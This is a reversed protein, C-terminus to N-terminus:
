RGHPVISPPHRLRSSSRVLSRRFSYSWLCFSKSGTIANPAISPESRAIPAKLASCRGFVGTGRRSRQRSRGDAVIALEQCGGDGHDAVVESFIEAVVLRFGSVIGLRDQGAQTRGTKDAGVVGISQRLQRQPAPPFLERSHIVSARSRRGSASTMLYQIPLPNLSEPALQLVLPEEKVAEFRGDHNATVNREVNGFVVRRNRM